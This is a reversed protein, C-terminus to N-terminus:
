PSPPMNTVLLKGVVAGALHLDCSWGKSATYGQAETEKGLFHSFSGRDETATIDILHTSVNLEYAKFLAQWM